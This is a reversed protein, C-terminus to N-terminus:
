PKVPVRLEVTLEKAVAFGFANGNIGYDKRNITFQGSFLGGEENELFTFPLEIAKTVGHLSLEGSVLYADGATKVTTSRFSITPYQEVDFWKEGRAHKDKTENGTDITSADLQVDFLATSLNTPDFIITGSLDQFVGNAGRGSFKIAFDEAINWSIISDISFASFLFFSALLLGSFLKRM